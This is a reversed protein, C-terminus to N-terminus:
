EKGYGEEPRRLRLWEVMLNMRRQLHLAHGTMRRGDGAIDCLKGREFFTLDAVDIHRSSSNRKDSDILKGVKDEKAMRLVRLCVHLAFGAVAIDRLLRDDDRLLRYFHFPAHIAVPGIASRNLAVGTM